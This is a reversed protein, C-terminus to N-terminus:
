ATKLGNGQGLARAAAAAAKAGDASNLGAALQLAGVLAALTGELSALRSEVAALRVEVGPNREEGASIEKPNGESKAIPVKGVEIAATAEAAELKAWAKNTIRIRGTRYGFYSGGSLDLKLALERQSLRWISALLDTRKLFSESETM